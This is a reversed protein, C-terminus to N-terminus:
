RESVADSRDDFEVILASAGERENLMRKREPPSAQHQYREKTTDAIRSVWAANCSMSHGICDGCRTGVEVADRTM